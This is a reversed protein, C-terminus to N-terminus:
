IRIRKYIPISRVMKQFYASQKKLSIVCEMQTQRLEKCLASIETLHSKGIFAKDGSNSYQRKWSYLVNPHIGLSRVVESTRQKGETVMKVVSVKFDKDFCKMKKKEGDM